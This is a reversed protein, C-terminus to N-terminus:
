KPKISMLELSEGSRNASYSRQLKESNVLIKNIRKSKQSYRRDRSGFKFKDSTKLYNTSKIKKQSKLNM